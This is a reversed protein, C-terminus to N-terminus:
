LSLLKCREELAQGDCTNLDIDEGVIERRPPMSAIQGQQPLPRLQSNCVETVAPVKYRTSLLNQTM